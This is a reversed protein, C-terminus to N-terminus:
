ALLKAVIQETSLTYYQGNPGKHRGFYQYRYRAPFHLKLLQHYYDALYYQSMQEEFALTDYAQTPPKPEHLRRVIETVEAKTLCEVVPPPPLSLQWALAEKSSSEYYEFLDAESVPKDTLQRLQEIIALAQEDDAEDHAEDYATLLTVAQPYRQAAVALQPELAVRLCNEDDLNTAM